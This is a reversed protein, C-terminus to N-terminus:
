AEWLEGIKVLAATAAILLASVVPMNEVAGASLIVCAGVGLTCLEKKTIKMNKSM